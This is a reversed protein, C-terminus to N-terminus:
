RLADGDTRAYKRQFHEGVLPRWAAQDPERQGDPRRLAKPVVTKNPRSGSSRLRERRRCNRLHM